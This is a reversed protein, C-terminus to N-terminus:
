PLTAAAAAPHIYKIVLRLLLCAPLVSKGESRQIQAVAPLHQGSHTKEGRNIRGPSARVSM